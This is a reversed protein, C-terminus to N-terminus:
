WSGDLGRLGNMYLRGSAVFMSYDTVMVPIDFSRALELVKEGPLKGRVFVIGEFGAIKSTRILQETIQGTLLLSGEAVSSLITDTLDSGGAAFVTKDMLNECSLVKAKLIDRIEYLKM